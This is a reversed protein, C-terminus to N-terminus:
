LYKMDTTLKVEDGLDLGNGAAALEANHLASIGDVLKKHRRFETPPKLKFKTKFRKSIRECSGKADEEDGSNETDDPDSEDDGPADLNKVIPIPNM